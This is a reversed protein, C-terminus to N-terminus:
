IMKIEEKMENYNLPMFDYEIINNEVDINTKHLYGAPLIVENGENMNDTFTYGVDGLINIKMVFGSETNYVWESAVDYDVCTSFPIPQMICDNDKRVYNIGRYVTLPINHTKLKESLEYWYEIIYLVSDTLSIELKNNSNIKVRNMLMDGIIADIIYLYTSSSTIYNNHIICLSKIDM